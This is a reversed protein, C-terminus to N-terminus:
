IATGRDINAKFEAAYDRFHRALKSNYVRNRENIFSVDLDEYFPRRRSFKNRRSKEEKLEKVMQLIRHEPHCQVILSLDLKQRQYEEPDFKLKKVRRKYSRLLTDTNFIDWGSVNRKEKKKQQTDRNLVHAVNDLLYKKQIPIGLLDLKEELATQRNKWTEMKGEKKWSNDMKQSQEQQAAAQNLKRAARLRKRLQGLRTDHEEQEEEGSEELLQEEPIPRYVELDLNRKALAEYYAKLHQEKKQANKEHIARYVKIQDSFEEFKIHERNDDLEGSNFVTIPCKPRDGDGTPTKEIERVVSMGEVVQGCVVQKGDLEPCPGLTIMFCSNNSNPGKSAMSVLGAHAHRRDFNEDM